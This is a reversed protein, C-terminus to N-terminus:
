SRARTQILLLDLINAQSSSVAVAVMNFSAVYSGRLSSAQAAQDAPADVVHLNVRRIVYRAQPLVTHLLAARILGYARFNRVFETATSGLIEQAAKLALSIIDVTLEVIDIPTLMTPVSLM